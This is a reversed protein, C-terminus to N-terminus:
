PEEGLAQQPGLLVILGAVTEYSTAKSKDRREYERSRLSGELYIGQGAPAHRLAEAVHGFAVVPHSDEREAWESTGRRKYRDVTRVRFSALTGSNPISRFEAPAELEGLLRVSSTGRRATM